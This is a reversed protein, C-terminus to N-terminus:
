NFFYGLDNAGLRLNFRDGNNKAYQVAISLPNMGTADDARPNLNNARVVSALTAIEHFEKSLGPMNKMLAEIGSKDPHENTVRIAANRTAMSGAHGTAMNGTNRTALISGDRSDAQMTFPTAADMGAGALIGVMKHQFAGLQMQLSEALMESRLKMGELDVDGNEGDTADQTAFFDTLQKASPSLLLMDGSLSCGQSASKAKKASEMAADQLPSLGAPKQVARLERIASAFGAMDIGHIM